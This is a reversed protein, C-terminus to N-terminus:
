HSPFNEMLLEAPVVEVEVAWAGADEFSKVQEFIWMAEDM